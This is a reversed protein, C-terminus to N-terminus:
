PAQAPAQAGAPAAAPATVPSAPLPDSVLRGAARLALVAPPVREVEVVLQGPLGHQLPIPAVGPNLLAAEVRVLGDRLEGAVSVVQAKVSGYQAWPFGDLRLTAAQGAHVRGMAVAPVFSAVVRLKGEPLVSAVREGPQVVVGVPLRGAEAIRGAVPARVQRLEINHRLRFITARATALAGELDRRQSGLSSLRAARDRQEVAASRQAAQLAAAARQEGAIRQEATAKLRNLETEPLIGQGLLAQARLWERDAQRRLSEQEQLGAQAAAAQAEALGLAEAAAAQEAALEQELAQLRGQLGAVRSEEEALQRRESEADLELLLDGAQVLSGVPPPSRVVQGGVPADVPHAASDVELRAQASTEYVVVSAAVFWYAWAGLLVLALVVTLVTTGYGDGQLARASRLFTAADRLESGGRLHTRAQM